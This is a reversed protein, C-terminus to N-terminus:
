TGFQEDAMTECVRRELLAHGLQEVCGIHNLPEELVMENHGIHGLQAVPQLPCSLDSCSLRRRRSVRQV